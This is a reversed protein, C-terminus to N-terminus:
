TGNLALEAVPAPAVAARVLEAAATHRLFAATEEVPCNLWDDLWEDHLIAPQRRHVGATATGVTLMAFSEVCQGEPSRWGNWLGAIALPKKDRRSLRVLTGTRADDEFLAEALVVCRHGRKWPQLFNREGAATEAQAEFLPDLGDKSFLPILGWRGRSAEFRALVTSGLRDARPRRVFTGIDGPHVHMDAPPVADVGFRAVYDDRLPTPQYHQLM